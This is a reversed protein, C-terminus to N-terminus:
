AGSRARPSTASSSTRAMRRRAPTPSCGARGSAAAQATVQEAVAAVTSTAPPADSVPDLGGALAVLVAGGTVVAAIAIGAAAAEGRRM